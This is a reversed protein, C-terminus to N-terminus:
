QQELYDEKIYSQSVEFERHLGPQGQIGLSLHTGGHRAIMAKTNSLLVLQGRGSPLQGEPVHCFVRMNIRRHAFLVQVLKSTM